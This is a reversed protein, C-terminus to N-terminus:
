NNLPSLVVKGSSLSQQVLIIRQNSSGRFNLRIDKLDRDYNKRPIIAKAVGAKYAAILKEKLGGIPLVKGSLTIEGVPHYFDRKLAEIMLLLQDRQEVKM